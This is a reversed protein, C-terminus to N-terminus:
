SKTIIKRAKNGDILFIKIRGTHKLERFARKIREQRPIREKTTYVHIAGGLVDQFGISKM